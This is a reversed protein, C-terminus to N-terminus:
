FCLGNKDRWSWWCSGADIDVWIPELAFLNSSWLDAHLSVWRPSVFETNLSRFNTGRSHIYNNDTYRKEEATERCPNPKCHSFIATTIINDITEDVIDFAAEVTERQKIIVILGDGLKESSYCLPAILFSRLRLNWLYLVYLFGQISLKDSWLSLCVFRQALKNRTYLKSKIYVSAM